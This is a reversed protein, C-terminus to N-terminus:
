GVVSKFDRSHRPAGRFVLARACARATGQPLLASVVWEDMHFGSGSRNIVGEGIYRGRKAEEERGSWAAVSM